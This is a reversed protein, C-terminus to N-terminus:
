IRRVHAHYGDNWDFNAIIIGTMKILGNDGDNPIMQEQEKYM